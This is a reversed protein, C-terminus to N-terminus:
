WKCSPMFVALQRVEFGGEGKGRALLKSESGRERDSSILFRQLGRVDVGCGEGV